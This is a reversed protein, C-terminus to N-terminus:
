SFLCLITIQSPILTCDETVTSFGSSPKQPHKKPYSRHQSTVKYAYRMLAIGHPAPTGSGAAPGPIQGSGPSPAHVPSVEASSRVGLVSPREPPLYM